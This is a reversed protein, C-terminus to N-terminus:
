AERRRLPGHREPVTRTRPDIRTLGGYSWWAFGIVLPVIVLAIVWLAPLNQFQFFQDASAAPDTSQQAPAQPLDAIM